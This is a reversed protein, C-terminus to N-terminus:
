EVEKFERLTLWQDVENKIKNKWKLKKREEVVSDTWTSSPKRCGGPPILFYDAHVCVLKDIIGPLDGVDALGEPGHKHLDADRVSIWTQPHLSSNVVQFAKHHSDELMLFTDSQAMVGGMVPYDTALYFNTIGRKAMFQPLFNVLEQACAVLNETPALEM